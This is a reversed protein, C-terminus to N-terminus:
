SDSEIVQTANHRDTGSYVFLKISTSAELYIWLQASDKFEDSNGDVVWYCAETYTGDMTRAKIVPTSEFTQLDTTASISIPSGCVKEDVGPWYTSWLPLTMGGKNNLTCKNSGGNKCNDDTSADACCYGKAPQVEGNLATGDAPV